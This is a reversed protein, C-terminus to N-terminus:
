QQFIDLTEVVFLVNPHMLPTTEMSFHFWYDIYSKKEWCESILKRYMPYGCTRRHGSFALNVGTEWTYNNIIIGKM